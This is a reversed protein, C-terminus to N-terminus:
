ESVFGVWKGSVQVSRGNIDQMVTEYSHLEATPGSSGVVSDLHHRIGVGDSFRFEVHRYVGGIRESQAPTMYGRGGKDVKVIWQSKTLATTSHVSSEVIEFSGRFGVPVEIVLHYREACGVATCVLLM